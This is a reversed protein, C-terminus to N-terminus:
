DPHGPTSEEYDDPRSLGTRRGQRPSTAAHTGLHRCRGQYEANAASPFGEIRRTPRSQAAQTDAPWGRRTRRRVYWVLGATAAGALAVATATRKPPLDGMRPFRRQLGVPTAFVLVPWDRERRRGRAAGQRPEGRVPPRRGRAHPRRHRLRQLRLVRGPRLGGARGPRADGRGQETRLRLVRDRRHLPRGRGGDPDRDGPRRRAPCRDARRDRRRQQQRHRRRARGRPAGRDPGRGRRLDAPRDPRPPDRRRDGQIQEVDWGTCLASLYERM